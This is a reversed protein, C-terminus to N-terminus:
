LGVARLSELYLEQANPPSPKLLVQFQYFRQVRNPNIGYRGDTPRRSPQVYAARYPEPGLCRLFTVPQFTGAGMEVDYPLHIACGQKAWFDCLRDILEQFDM